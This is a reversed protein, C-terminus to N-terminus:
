IEIRVEGEVDGELDEVEVLEVVAMSQYGRAEDGSELLYVVVGQLDMLDEVVEAVESVMREPDGEVMAVVGIGEPRDQQDVVWRHRHRLHQSVAMRWPRYFLWM